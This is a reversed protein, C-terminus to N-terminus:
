WVGMRVRLVNNEDFVLTQGNSIITRQGTPSSQIQVTGDNNVVFRQNINISGANIHGLNGSLASLHTVAIRDATISQAKIVGGHIKTGIGPPTWPSSETQYSSTAHAVMPCQIFMWSDAHGEYPPRKRFLLRCFVAEDPASQIVSHRFYNLLQKGGTHTGPNEPFAHYALTQQNVGYFVLYGYVACRHAGSYFSADIWQKPACPVIPSKIELFPDQSGYGSIGNHHLALGNIGIVHWDDGALNVGMRMDAMNVHRSDGYFYDEPRHQDEVLFTEVFASNSLLNGGAIGSSLVNTSITGARLKDGTISNAILAEGTISGNVILNGDMGIAPVGNKSSIVFPVRKEVGPQVIAFRDSLIVFDSQPPGDSVTSALGYGTVYGNLDIKTTLQASLGAIATEQTQARAEFRAQIDTQIGTLNDQWKTINYAVSGPVTSDGEIREVKAALESLLASDRVNNTDPLVGIVTFEVPTSINLDNKDFNDYAAARCYYAQGPTLPTSSATTNLRHLIIFTDPGDYVLNDQTAPCLPDISLWVRIGAFDDEAPATCTFYASQLAPDIRISTLAGSQRNSLMISSWKGVKGTHARGRVRVIVHRWPGGDARMDEAHYRYFNNVLGIDLRVERVPTGASIQIDYSVAGDLQDWALSAQKGRDWTTSARLQQVAGLPAGVITYQHAPVKAIDQLAGGFCNFSVCKIWISKSLWDAPYDYRFLGSSSQQGSQNM